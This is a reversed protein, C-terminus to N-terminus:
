GRKAYSRRLLFLDDLTRQERRLEERHYLRLQEDKLIELTERQRRAERFLAEQQDRLHKLRSIAQHLEHARRSLSDLTTLSFHVESAALGTVLRDSAEMRLQQKQHSLLDLVHVAKALQQNAARLRLEQQHEVSQRLRYLPELAFRFAM